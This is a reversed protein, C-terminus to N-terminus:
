MQAFLRELRATKKSIYMFNTFLKLPKGRLKLVFSKANRPFKKYEPLYAASSHRAYFNYSRRKNEAKKLLVAKVIM